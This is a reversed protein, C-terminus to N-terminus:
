AKGAKSWPLRTLMRTGNGPESEAKMSGGHKEIIGYVVSLGLGTGKEKTTFFPDFIKPLVDPPIGSGTDAIEVEVVNEPRKLRTTFTLKGGKPMVDCANLIINLFSQRLQGFDANVTSLELPAYSKVVEIGQLNIKNRALSLAEELPGHIDVEKLDLPRQRAFDLLNRVIATCRETERQILKLNKICVGRGQEDVEGEELTRVLVKAFTLIGALPNNIEHAISASLKGLSALKETQVLQAQAKRLDATREEVQRELGALLELREQRSRFLSAAMSNVTVALFGLEDRSHVVVRAELDGTGMRETANTIEKVPKLVFRRSVFIVIAVVCLLVFSSIAIISHTLQSVADDVTALSLGIDVVGLVRQSDPHAHCDGTSCSPENYIPTVMGLIRHGEPHAYIRTRSPVTLHVIPKGAAHCAYCSEAKKDVFMGREGPTASYTVCGEKNFIRVKDIGEQRAILAMVNYVGGKEGKLMQEHTSSKITESFMAAGRIVEEILSQRYISIALATFLGFGTLTVFAIAATLRFNLRRYWALRSPIEQVLQHAAAPSDSPM